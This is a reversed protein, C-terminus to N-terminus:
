NKQTQYLGYIFIRHEGQILFQNLQRLDTDTTTKGYGQFFPDIGGGDKPHHYVGFADCQWIELKAKSLISGEMSFVKGFLNTIRGMARGTKGAVFTLDADSDLPFKSPYFPGLSQSPTVGAQSATVASCVM